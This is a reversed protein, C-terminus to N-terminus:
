SGIVEVTSLRVTIGDATVEVTDIRERQRNIRFAIELARQLDRNDWSAFATLGSGTEDKSPNFKIEM